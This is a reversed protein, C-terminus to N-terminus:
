IISRLESVVTKLTEVFIDIENTTTYKGLTIRLSGHADNKSLGLALLVHSPEIFRSSCASGTSVFIEHRDLRILVSEGEVGAISININNPSRRTPHGNLKTEPIESLIRNIAYDRLESQRNAETLRNRSATELAKAFGIIAPANETGPRLDFEQGGGFSRPEFPTGAKLFLLGAGKPGYIKGANLSLANVGLLETDLEFYGAAQCADTHILTKNQRCLQSLSQIDQVTGVENNVMIISVLATDPRLFKQLTEPELIGGSDVPMFEVVFGLTELYEASAKVSSHEITTTLIHNKGQRMQALAIGLVGMNCSETGGSTFIIEEPHSNLIRAIQTRAAEIARANERGLSYVSSPNSFKEVFYPEMAKFVEPDLPTTAAYDLYISM